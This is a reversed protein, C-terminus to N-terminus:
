RRYHANVRTIKADEGIEMVEAALLNNVSRYILTLSAVGPLAHLLTFQLDPYKSLGALFYDRLAAKGAIMGSTEGLLAQVFPSTFEIADAYHDLIRELDRNNWAQLWDAAFRDAFEETM